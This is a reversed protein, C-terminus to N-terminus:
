RIATKWVRPWAPRPARDSVSAPTKLSIVSAQLRRHYARAMERPACDGCFAGAITYVLQESLHPRLKQLEDVFENFWEERTM